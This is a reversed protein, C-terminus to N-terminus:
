PFSGNRFTGLERDRSAAQVYMDYLSPIDAYPSRKHIMAVPSPDRQLDDRVRQEDGRLRAWPDTERNAAVTRDTSRPGELGPVDDFSRQRLLGDIDGIGRDSIRGAFSDSPRRPVDGALSLSTDASSNGQMMEDRDAAMRLSRMPEAPPAPEPVDSGPSNPTTNEDSPQRRSPRQRFTQANCDSRNRPDCATRETRTDSPEQQTDTQKSSRPASDEQSELQVLRRAREKLVLDQEKAIDSEPNLNPLLYGYRQVLQTAVSRFEVDRDLRDFIAQDTLESDEVIQGNDTAEKAVWRKLEVMIGADKLLVAQLQATSAAVRELNKRALDSTRDRRTSLATYGAEHQSDIEQSWTNLSGLLVFMAILPLCRKGRPIMPFAVHSRRNQSPEESQISFYDLADTPSKGTASFSSAEIRM